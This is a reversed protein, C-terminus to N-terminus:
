KPFDIERNKFRSEARKIESLSWFWNVLCCGVFVVSPCDARESCDMVSNVSVLARHVALYQITAGTTCAGWRCWCCCCTSHNTGYWWWWWQCCCCTWFKQAVHVHTTPVIMMIMQHRTWRHVSRHNCCRRFGSDSVYQIMREYMWESMWQTQKKNKMWWNVLVCM